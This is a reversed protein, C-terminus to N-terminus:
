KSEINLMVKKKNGLGQLNAGVDIKYTDKNPDTTDINLTGVTDGEPLGTGIATLISIVSATFSISLVNLWNVDMFAQGVTLMTVATQAFTRIARYLAAILFDKTLRMTM